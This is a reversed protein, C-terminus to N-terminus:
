KSLDASDYHLEVERLDYTRYFETMIRTAVDKTDKESLNMLLVAFQTSSYRTSIDVNRISNVIANQLLGMIRDREEVTVKIGNVSTITFLIIQINQQNREAINSIYTYMRTFEPYATLMSGKYSEKNQIVDILQKLDVAEVYSLSDEDDSIHHCYFANGKQQKAVYIAKDANEYLVMVQDKETMVETAGVSVAMNRIREDVSIRDELLTFFRDAFEKAEAETDAKDYYVVFEDAGFRSMVLGDACARILEVMVKLYHDGVVFGETENIRHFHDIDFIFLSGHGKEAIANQLEARGRERGFTATLDDLDGVLEAGKDEAYDIVRSLITTAQQVMAADEDTNVKPLRKEEILRIMALACESDWQTGVGRKLESLVKDENLHRRYVRNSSMADYADAVAIIRAIMPIEDGKLGDPYGKGDVREHHYKAGIDLGKIMDIDKLIEAGVTTHSKMVQYEENTLRGPKNLVADPIGIKGIDHLLGIFRVDAVEEDSYGMEKAIAASYESVRRSHGRTYEDKADITNAITTITQMTMQEMQDNRELIEENMARIEENQATLEENIDAIEENQATIEENKRELEEGALRIEENQAIIEDNKRTLEESQQRIEENQAELDETFKINQSHIEDYLRAALYSGLFCLFLLALQIEVDKSNHENLEGNSLRIIVSIINVIMSAIGSALIIRPEHFLVLLSLMPLIYCFVMTTSGTIMVFCYMIFYGVVIEYKLSERAPKTLYRVLVFAAPLITFLLFVFLYGLSREGKVVEMIYAAALILVILTWGTVLSRNIKKIHEDM